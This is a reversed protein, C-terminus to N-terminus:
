RGPPYLGALTGPLMGSYTASSFDCVCTLRVGGLPAMRWMRLVHANTHGLGLLVLDREPLPTQM